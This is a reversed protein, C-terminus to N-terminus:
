GLVTRGLRDAGTWGLEVGGLRESASILHPRLWKGGEDPPQMGYLAYRM